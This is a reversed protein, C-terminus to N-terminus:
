RGSSAAATGHIISCSALLMRTFNTKSLQQHTPQNQMQHVMSLLMLDELIYDILHAQSLYFTGPDKSPEIKVGLYNNISGEDKIEFKSALDKMAQEAAEPDPDMM